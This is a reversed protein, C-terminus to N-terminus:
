PEQGVGGPPGGADPAGPDWGWRARVRARFREREQPTMAACREAMHARMRARMGYPGRGGRAGVGGFLIRALALLGLAQWFGIAPFGFLPPLLWNWLLRVIEGGIFAVLAIGLLAAPVIFMWKRRM